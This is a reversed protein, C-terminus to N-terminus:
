VKANDKSTENNRLYKDNRQCIIIDYILLRHNKNNDSEAQRLLVIFKNLM